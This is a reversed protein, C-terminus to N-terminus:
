RVVCSDRRISLISVYGGGHAGSHSIIREIAVRDRIVGSEVILQVHRVGGERDGRDEGAEVGIVYYECNSRFM